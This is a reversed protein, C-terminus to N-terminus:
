PNVVLAEPICEGRDCVYGQDFRCNEDSSCNQLCLHCEFPDSNEDACDFFNVSCSGTDCFGDEDCYRTCYGDVFNTICDADPAFTCDNTGECPAGVGGVIDNIFRSSIGFDIADVRQNDGVVVPQPEDATPYAGFSETDSAYSGDNNNDGVAYVEYSGVRLGTIEYQFGNESKAITEAVKELGGSALRTYAAVQVNEVRRPSRSPDDNFDLSVLAQQVPDVDTTEVRLNASGAEFAGRALTVTITVRGIPEVTGSSPSANFLQGQAGEIVTTFSFPANGLNVVHFTRSTLGLPFNIQTLDTGLLPEPQIEGGALLLANVADLTGAGCGESCRGAPNASQKIIQEVTAQNLAPNTSVLLAAVGAGYNSYGTRLGTINAAGV